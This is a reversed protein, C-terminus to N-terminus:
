SACRRARAESRRASASRTTAPRSRRTAEVLRDLARGTTRLTRGSASWCRSSSCSSSSSGPSRGSIRCSSRRPAPSSRGPWSWSSSRRVPLRVRAMRGRWPAGGVATWAARQPSRAASAVRERGAALRRRRRRRTRADDPRADTPTRPRRRVPLRRRLRDARLAAPAPRARAQPAPEQRALRDGARVDRLRRRPRADLLQARTFIAARAARALTALLAFETPPSTSPRAPSRPACGRCTSSSTAPRSSTRAPERRARDARRLVARVRAVLERPSFPKTLYDDAGLELGLLKDLEDDRATLMVIPITSDRRPARPHRRPRRPRAARPRPRRPGPPAPPGSALAAPGDAATLVAFGAHELYDRALTVIKPEDDVVLITKMAATMTSASAGGSTEDPPALLPPLADPWAPPSAPEGAGGPRGSRGAIPDHARRHWDDFTDHARSEWPSGAASGDGLRGAGAAAAAPGGRWFIARILGFVLFLFFLTAFFGFFGFGWGCPHWGYGYAPVVVPAVVTAAPPPRRSPPTSLGAQYATTAIIGGGIVLVVVLLIAAIVRSM